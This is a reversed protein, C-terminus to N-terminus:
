LGHAFPDLTVTQKKIDGVSGVSPFYQSWLLCEKYNQLVKKWCQFTRKVNIFSTTSFKVSSRWFIEWSTFWPVLLSLKWSFSSFHWWLSSLIIYNTSACVQSLCYTSLPKLFCHSTRNGTAVNILCWPVFPPSHLQDSKAWCCNGM